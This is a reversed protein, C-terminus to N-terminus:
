EKNLFRYKARVQEYSRSKIFNAIQHFDNGHIKLAFQFLNSEDYSWKGKKYNNKRQEAETEANLKLKQLFPEIQKNKNYNCCNANQKLNCLEFAIEEIENRKRKTNM